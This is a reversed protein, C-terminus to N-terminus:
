KELKGKWNKLLTVTEAVAELSDILRLGGKWTKKFEEQSPRLKRRSPPKKGDKIEVFISLGGYGVAGDPAGDGLPSMSLFSCGLMRFADAVEAHNADVRGYKRM